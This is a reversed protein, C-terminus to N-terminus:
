TEYRPSLLFLNGGPRMTRYTVPCIICLITCIAALANGPSPLAKHRSASPLTYGPRFEILRALGAAKNSGTLKRSKRLQKWFTDSYATEYINKIGVDFARDRVSDPWARLCLFDRKRNRGAGSRIVYLHRPSAFRRTGGRLIKIVNERGRRCEICAIYSNNQPRRRGVVHPM